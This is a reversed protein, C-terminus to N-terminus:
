NTELKRWVKKFKQLMSMREGPRREKEQLKNINNLPMKLAQLHNSSRCKTINHQQFDRYQHNRSFYNRSQSSGIKERIAVTAWKPWPDAEAAEM